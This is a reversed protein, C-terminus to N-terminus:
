RRKIIADIWQLPTYGGDRSKQTAMPSAAIEEKVKTLLIRDDSEAQWRCSFNAVVTRLHQMREEDTGRFPTVSLQIETAPIRITDSFAIGAFSRNEQKVLTPRSPQAYGQKYVTVVGITANARTNEQKWAPFRFRGETQTEVAMSRFCHEGAHGTNSRKFRIAVVAGPLPKGSEADVVVGTVEEATVYKAAELANSGPAVALASIALPLLAAIRM